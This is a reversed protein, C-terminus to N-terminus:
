LQVSVDAVTMRAPFPTDARPYGAWGGVALSLVLHYSRDVLWRSGRPIDARTISGFRKGDFLFEVVGPESRMEYRHTADALPRSRFLTSSGQYVKTSTASLPGHVFAHLQGRENTVLEMIDVEGAQPWEPPEVGRGWFAPWLGRQHPVHIHATVRARTLPFHAFTEIRGSTYDSHHGKGDTFGERRATIVLNGNGDLVTNDRRDTYAQRQTPGFAGGTQHWWLLPNPATGAPGDFDDRWVERLPPTDLPGIRQASIAAVAPRGSFRLTLVRGRVPVELTTHIPKAYAGGVPIDARRAAGGGSVRFSRRPGRRPDVLYLTVAYLGAEGVRLRARRIRDAAHEYLRPTGTYALPRSTTVRRGDFARGAPTWRKGAADTFARPAATLRVPAAQAAAPVTVLIALAAGLVQRRRSM